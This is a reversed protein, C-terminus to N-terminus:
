NNDLFAAKFAAASGRFYDVDLNGKHGESLLGEWSFQWLSHKLNKKPDPLEIKRDSASLDFIWVKFGDTLEAIQANSTIGHDTLFSKNTYILPMRGTKAKVRNLFDRSTSVIEAASRHNTTWRDEQNTRLRDWELDMAPPLDGPKFGGHLQVFALFRDAQETGSQFSFSSLFHFAGRPIRQGDPLAALRVWTSGFEPDAFDTGQTAKVYIFAIQQRKLTDVQFEKGDHHSIDLGFLSDTRLVGNVDRVANDPFQFISPFVFSLKGVGPHRIRNKAYDQFLEARSPEDTLVQWTEPVAQASATSITAVTVLLSGVILKLLSVKGM